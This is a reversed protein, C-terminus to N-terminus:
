GNRGGLPVEDVFPVRGMQSALQGLQAYPKIM